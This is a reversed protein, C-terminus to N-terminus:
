ARCLRGAPDKVNGFDVQSNFDIARFVNQLKSSNESEIKSLAVNIKQGIENNNRNEYLYDFASEDSIVFRERNMAREVRRLNGNYQEM